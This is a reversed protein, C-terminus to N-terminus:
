NLAELAEQAVKLDDFPFSQKGIIQMNEHGKGAIILADGPELLKVGYFIAERRDIYTEYQCNTESLGEQIQKIIDEPQESRPNDSTIICYDALEGAIRGMIPRKTTDKEGGCGFLIIVRKNTFDRVNNIINAISDPSHAYDVFVHVGKDNPVTQIRGPVGTIAALCHRIQEVSLGAVLAAGIAALGNYVNFRGKVPIFFHEEVGDIEIDFASGTELYEVHVARLDCDKNIGYTLWKCNGYDMIKSTYKDDINVVGYKCMRFLKAKAELYNEM